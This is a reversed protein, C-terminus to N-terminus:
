EDPQRAKKKKPNELKELKFIKVAVYITILVFLVDMLSYVFIGWGFNASRGHFHLTFTRQSLAQGGLLQFAPDIFSAILQKALTQIQTAVVFGLALAVVAHERLFTVFGGVAEDAGTVVPNPKPQRRSQPPEMRLMTGTTVSQVPPISRNRPKAAAM